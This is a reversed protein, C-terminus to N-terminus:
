IQLPRERIQAYAFSSPCYEKTFHHRKQHVVETPSHHMRALPRAHESLVQIPQAGAVTTKENGQILGSNKRPPLHM